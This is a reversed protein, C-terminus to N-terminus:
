AVPLKKSFRRRFAIFGSLGIGLLAISSPEPVSSVTLIQAGKSLSSATGTITGLSASVTGGAIDTISGTADFSYNFVANSYGGMFLIKVVDGVASYTAPPFTLGSPTSVGSLTVTLNTITGAGGFTVDLEDTTAGPISFNSTATVHSTAHSPTAVALVALLAASFLFTRKIM